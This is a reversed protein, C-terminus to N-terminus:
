IYGFITFGNNKVGQYLQIRTQNERSAVHGDLIHIAVWVAGLKGHNGRGIVEIMWVEGTIYDPISFSEGTSAYGYTDMLELM